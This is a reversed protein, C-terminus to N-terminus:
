EPIPFLRETWAAFLKGDESKVIQFTRPDEDENDAKRDYHGSVIEVKIAEKNGAGFLLKTGVPFVPSHKRM